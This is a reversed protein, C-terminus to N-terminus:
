PQVEQGHRAQFGHPRMTTGAALLLGHIYGYSRGYAAALNRVTDGAEYRARLEAARQTRAQGKLYTVGVV